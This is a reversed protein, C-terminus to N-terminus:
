GTFVVQLQVVSIVTGVLTHQATYQRRAQTDQLQQCLKLLPLLLLQLLLLLVRTHLNRRAEMRQIHQVRRQAGPMFM